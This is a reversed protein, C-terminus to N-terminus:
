VIGLQFKLPESIYQSFLKGFAADKDNFDDKKNIFEVVGILRGISDIIPVALINKTNFGTKKDIDSNFKEDNYVDNAIYPKKSDIVAGVIGKDKPMEIKDTYDARLTWVKDGELIFISIREVDMLEKMVDAAHHIAENIDKVELMIKSLESLKILKEKEM